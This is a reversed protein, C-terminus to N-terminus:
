QARLVAIGGINLPNPVGPWPMLLPYTIHTVVKVYAEANPNTTCNVTTGGSDQCFSSATVTFDPVGQADTRAAAEMGAYNAFNASSIIGYQAGARAGGAAVDTYYFARGFDIVGSLMLFLMPTVLAAEIMANGSQRRKRTSELIPKM